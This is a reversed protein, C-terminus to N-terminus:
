LLYICEKDLYNTLVNNQTLEIDPFDMKFLRFKAVFNMEQLKSYTLLYMYNLM